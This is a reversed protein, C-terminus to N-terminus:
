HGRCSNVINAQSGCLLQWPIYAGAVEFRASCLNSLLFCVGCGLKGWQWGVFEVPCVWCLRSRVERGQCWENMCEENM